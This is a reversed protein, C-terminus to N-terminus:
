QPGAQLAAVSATTIISGGSGQNRFQSAAHKHGFWASHANHELTLEFVKEGLETIALPGGAAGANNRMVYLKGIQEAAAKVAAAIPAEETVDKHVYIVREKFAAAEEGADDSIDAIMIRTGDSAFRKVTALGLRSVGCTVIGIKDNSPDSLEKVQMPKGNTACFPRVDLCEVPLTLATPLDFWRTAAGLESRVYRKMSFQAM